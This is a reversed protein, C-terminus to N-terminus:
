GAKQLLAQLAEIQEAWRPAAEAFANALEAATDSEAAAREEAAAARTATLFRKLQADGVIDPAIKVADRVAAPRGSLLEARAGLDSPLPTLLTGIEALRSAGAITGVHDLRARRHPLDPIVVATGPDVTGSLGPNAKAVARVAAARQADGARSTLLDGVLKDLTTRSGTILIPM